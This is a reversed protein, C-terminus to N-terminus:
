GELGGQNYRQIYSRITHRHLDFITALAPVRFHQSSLDIIKLRRFWKKDETEKMAQLLEARGPEDVNAYIM